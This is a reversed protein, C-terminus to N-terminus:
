RGHMKEMFEGMEEFHQRLLKRREAKDSTGAIQGMLAHQKAMHEGISDLFEDSPQGYFMMGSGMMGPGYGMMGPGMMGPGYGMMGPGMM